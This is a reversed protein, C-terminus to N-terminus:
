WVSERPRFGGSPDAADKRKAGLRERHRVFIENVFEKSGLFVGDTLLRVRFAAGPGVGPRGWAGVGDPDGGSGFDNKGLLSVLKEKCLDDLLLQGGVIRSLCHCVATGAKLKIRAMRM